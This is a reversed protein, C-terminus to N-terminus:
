TRYDSVMARLKGLHDTYCTELRVVASGHKAKAKHLTELHATRLSVRWRRNAVRVSTTGAADNRTWLYFTFCTPPPM